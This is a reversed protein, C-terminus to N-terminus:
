NALYVHAALRPEAQLLLPEALSLSTRSEQLAIEDVGPPKTWTFGHLLRAFLMMTVSTGLPVAPCGRRGTSFSVFRLDPEGLGVMGDGVLLHREPRFELPEPWVTPKHGLGIRSLIVHSGKPVTYGGITTDEMAVRPATFAHFPHIRFAERICSKLYNLKCIDSEQVLRERGVVADLEDIAKQMVDPKNLMEALAWEAANSPSDVTAFMIEVIQAKIEEFTLLPHGAADELSVLVDLFDAAERKEVAERRDAWERMREEIIPDHLRDFTSVVGKAVKEHGDLDLGVLAPFYDSVCFGYVYNVLTFLADVHEVEDDGPGAVAMAPEAEGFYRKGFVLRRVLNGCFHQGVHRINITNDQTMKIQDSVYRILHDAEDVRQAHLRRDLAPSLIESTVIRRMKRWQQEFTTLSASKYGYSFASSVFTSPRSMFAAEKVRLVERAMEPCAVAVVHVSGLRLCLIDTGMRSLLGNIWRSVSPKNWILQHMNGILPLTAPGPPLRPRKSAASRRHFQFLVLVVTATAVLVAFPTDPSSM